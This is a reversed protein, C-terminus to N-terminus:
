TGPMVAASMGRAPSTNRFHATSLPVRTSYALVSPSEGSHFAHRWTTGRLLTNRPRITCLNSVPITICALPVDQDADAASPEVYAGQEYSADCGVADIDDGVIPVDRFGHGGGDGVGEVVDVLAREAARVADWDEGLLALGRLVLPGRPAM